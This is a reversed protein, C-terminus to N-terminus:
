QNQLELNKICNQHHHAVHYISFFLMERLTMKGLIPHPLLLTDLDTETFNNIQKCIKNTTAIIKNQLTTKQKPSVVAPIFQRTAVAGNELSKTYKAVVEPYTKSARNAKGLLLGLLWKPIHLALSIPAISRYIHDLQQGASWKQNNLSFMFDTDNLMAGYNAFSEYEKTLASIIEQKNMQIQKNKFCQAAFIQKQHYINAIVAAKRAM